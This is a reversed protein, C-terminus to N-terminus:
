LCCKARAWPKGLKEAYSEAESLTNLSGHWKVTTAKVKRNKYFRCKETHIKVPLDSPNTIFKKSQLDEFVVYKM